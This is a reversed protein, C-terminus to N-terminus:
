REYWFDLLYYALMKEGASYEPIYKVKKREMITPSLHKLYYEYVKEWANIDFEIFKQHAWRVPIDKGAVEFVATDCISRYDSYLDLLEIFKKIDENKCEEEKLGIINYLKLKNYDAIYMFSSESDSDRLYVIYPDSCEDVGYIRVLTNIEEENKEYHRNLFNKCLLSVSPMVNYYFVDKDNRLFQEIDNFTAKLEDLTKPDSNKIIVTNSFDARKM